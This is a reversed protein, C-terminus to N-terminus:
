LQSREEKDRILMCYGHDYKAGCGICADGAGEKDCDVAGCRIDHKWAACTRTAKVAYPRCPMGDNCVTGNGLVRFPCIAGTWNEKETM